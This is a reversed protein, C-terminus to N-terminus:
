TTTASGLGALGSLDITGTDPDLAGSSLNACASAGVPHTPDLIPIAYGHFCLTFNLTDVREVFATGAANGPLTAPHNVGNSTLYCEDIVVASVAGTAAIDCSAIIQLGSVFVGTYAGTVTVSVPRRTDPTQNASAPAASVAVLAATAALGTLVRKLM